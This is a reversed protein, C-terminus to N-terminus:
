RLTSAFLYRLELPTFKSTLFPLFITPLNKINDSSKDNIILDEKFM